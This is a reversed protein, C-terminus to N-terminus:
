YFFCICCKEVLILALPKQHGLGRKWYDVQWKPYNLGQRCALAMSGWPRGNLEIFWYNGELDVLFEFMFLGQYDFEDLFQKMPQLLHHPCQSIECASAGSGHPNMMRIRKHASWHFVNKGIRIGFIGSGNGPIWEQELTEFHVEQKQYFDLEEEKDSLIFIRDKTLRDENKQIAHVPKIIKPTKNLDCNLSTQLVPLGSAKALKVQMQKNLSLQVQSLSPGKLDLTQKLEGFLYLSEDDLPFFIDIEKEDIVERIKELVKNISDQPSGVEVIKIGPSYKLVSGQAKKSIIYVNYERRLSYYVEICSLAEAFGILVNKM